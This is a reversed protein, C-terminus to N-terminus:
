QRRVEAGHDIAASAVTRQSIRLKNIELLAANFSKNEPRRAMCWRLHPEAESYRGVNKLAFGLLQRVRFVRPDCQYAQELCALAEVPQQMDQYMSAQWLWLYVPPIGDKAHLERQTVQASYVVLDAQDQPQGLLRYRAWVERLTRWDPQMAELFDRAPMRAAALNVIRLQHPGSNAFCRAWIEM